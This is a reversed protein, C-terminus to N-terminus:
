CYSWLTLYVVASRSPVASASAIWGPEGAGVDLMSGVVCEGFEALCDLRDGRFGTSLPIPRARSFKSAIKSIQQIRLLIGYGHLPGLSAAKLILM